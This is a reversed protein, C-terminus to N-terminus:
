IDKVRLVARRISRDDFGFGPRRKGGVTVWGGPCGDRVLQYFPEWKMASPPLKGERRLEAILADRHNRIPRSSHRAIWAVVDKVGEAELGRLLMAAPEDELGFADKLATINERRRGKPILNEMIASLPNNSNMVCAREVYDAWQDLAAKMEGLYRATTCGPTELV